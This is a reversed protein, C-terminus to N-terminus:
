VKCAEDPQDVTRTLKLTFNYGNLINLVQNDFIQPFFFFSIKHPKQSNRSAPLDHCVDGFARFQGTSPSRIRLTYPIFSSAKNPKLVEEIPNQLFESSFRIYELNQLVNVM